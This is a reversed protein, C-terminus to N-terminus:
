KKDLSKETYQDSRCGVHFLDMGLRLRRLVRDIAAAFDDFVLFAFRFVAFFFPPLFFFYCTPHMMGAAAGGPGL